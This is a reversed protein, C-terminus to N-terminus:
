LVWSSKVIFTGVIIALGGWSALMVAAEARSGKPAWDLAIDLAHSPWLLAVPYSKTAFLDLVIHSAYGAAMMTGIMAAKPGFASLLWALICMGGLALLSHTRERHEWGMRRDMDPLAAAAGALVLGAVDALHYSHGFVPWVALWASVAGAPIHTNVTRM